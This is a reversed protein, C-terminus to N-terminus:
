LLVEQAPPPDSELAARRLPNGPQRVQIWAIDGRSDRLIGEGRRGAPVNGDEDQPSTQKTLREVQHQFGPDKEDLGVWQLNDAALPESGIRMMLRITLLEKLTKSGFDASPNQSGLAAAQNNRRGERVFRVTGAEGEPSLMLGAAEDVPWFTFRSRDLAAIEAVAQALLAYYARGFVQEPPMSTFLHENTLVDRDPLRLGNTRFIIFPSNFTAVPLDDDFVVRAHPRAAHTRMHNGVELAGELDCEGALLHRMVAATSNLDHENLYAPTLVSALVVGKSTNLGTQMLATLFGLMPGSGRDPGFVRLLDMSYNPEQCQVILADEVSMSAFHAWEGETTNDITVVQAGDDVAFGALEKLLYTNHTPIMSRGALYLRSEAAVGICKVPVSPCPRIATIYRMQTRIPVSRARRAAHTERKRTLAFVDDTTTFAVRWRPGCDRGYLKARGTRIVARYGLSCAIEHVAKALRENTNDFEVAGQPAATGDTDLLGALLARRQAISSRLYPAPVHKNGLLDLMALRGRLSSAHWCAAHRRGTSNGQMPAECVECVAPPLSKTGDQRAQGACRHSCYRRRAYTSVMVEGCRSCEVPFTPKERQEKPFAVTYGYKDRAPTVVYGAAEIFSLIEPDATSIEPRTSMGDGLWCGLVYPDIPLDQEPLELPATVPIAHNAQQNSRLSKSLEATTAQEGSRWWGDGILEAAREALDVGGEGHARARYNSKYHRSRVRHPLTTWLHEADAVIVSGDSFEVEFCEHDTMVPSVSTIPTPRGREDLVVDGPMLDGMRAWGTPTPIPTDLALAKGAGLEGGVGCSASGGKLPKDMMALHVAATMTPVSRNFAVLWGRTDGVRTTTFPVALSFDSATTRQYFRRTTANTPTDPTAAWWLWEQARGMPRDLKINVAKMAAVLQKAASQCEQPSRGSTTLITTHQVDLEDPHNTFIEQYDTLMRASLDLAHQGQEAADQQSYQDNLTRVARQTAKLVKDRSNVRLRVTWDVMVGFNDIAGLYESGPFAMGEMPFDRIALMTQYSPDQGLDEAEETTVKLYRRSLPNQVGFAGDKDDTRGGVDLIPEPVACGSHVRESQGSLGEPPSSWLGRSCSHAWVWLREAPTVPRAALVHPLLAGIEDAQRQRAEVDQASVGAVPAGVQDKLERVSARWPEGVADWGVNKLPVWLWFTREGLVIDQLQDLTAEAEALAGPFKEWSQPAHRALMRRVTVEPDINTVLGQVITEGSLSQWLARHTDAVKEKDRVSREGYALPNTIRWGAWVRGSYTWALQGTLATYPVRASLSSM